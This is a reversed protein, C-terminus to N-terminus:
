SFALYKGIKALKKTKVVDFEYWTIQPVEELEELKCVIVLLDNIEERLRQANNLGATEPGPGTSGLEGSKWVQEKGFQIQKLARQGVETCEEALKTLWFQKISMM